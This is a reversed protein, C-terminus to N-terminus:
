VERVAKVLAVLCMSGDFNGQFVPSTENDFAELMKVICEIFYDEFWAHCYPIIVTYKKLNEFGSIVSLLAQNQTGGRGPMM